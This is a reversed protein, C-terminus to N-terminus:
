NKPEIPEIISPNSTTEFRINIPVATTNIVTITQEQHLAPPPPALPVPPLVMATSTAPPATEKKRPSTSTKPQHPEPASATILTAHIMVICYFSYLMTLRTCYNTM